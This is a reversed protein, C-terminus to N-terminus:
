DGGGTEEVDKPEAACASVSVSSINACIVRCGSWSTLTGEREREREKVEFFTSGSITPMRQSKRQIFIETMHRLLEPLKM